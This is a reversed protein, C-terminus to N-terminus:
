LWTSYLCSSANVLRNATDQQNKRDNLCKFIWVLGPFSSDSLNVVTYFAGQIHCWVPLNILCSNLWFCAWHTVAPLKRDPRIIVHWPGFETGRRSSKIMDWLISMRSSITAVCVGVVPKLNWVVGYATKFSCNVGFIFFIKM